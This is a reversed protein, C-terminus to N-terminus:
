SPACSPDNLLNKNAELIPNPLSALFKKSIMNTLALSSTDEFSTFMVFQTAHCLPKLISVCEIGSKGPLHIDMLVVDLSLSPIREIATEADAFAYECVFGESGNILVSISERIQKEDEVIGIKLKM